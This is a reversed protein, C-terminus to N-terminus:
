DFLKVESLDLDPNSQSIASVSVSDFGSLKPFNGVCYFHSNKFNNLM